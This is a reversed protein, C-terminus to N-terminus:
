IHSRSNRMYCVFRQLQPDKEACQLTIPHSASLGLFTVGMLTEPHTTFVPLPSTQGQLTFTIEAGNSKGIWKTQATKVLSPWHNLSNLGSLLEESMKTTLIYWQRLKRKEVPAGSRWSRGEQDVQENALVTKDVPDWNVLGDRQCVYGKEWLKLFLWQTWKYYDPSSTSYILHEPFM